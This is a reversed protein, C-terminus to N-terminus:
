LDIWEEISKDQNIGSAKQTNKGNTMYSGSSSKSYYYKKYYKKGYGGGSEEVYNYIVGLIRAGIFEFQQAAASYALRNCYNQRVVLLVGDTEKAVALADTVEGVPPLDLLVYDFYERLHALLKSMKASSLLEVPNPPNRGAAVVMFADEEGPIGCNQFLDNFTVQGALYNSLGPVKAIPLKTSLSPRRMDCDILLVRKDLQSLTHALNISTLSKGEGAMASSIGIVHCNNDDAFSFQIKTRLLKYAETAAFSINSGVLPQNKGTLGTKKADQKKGSAYYYSGSKSNASMNPVTVLVPHDTIMTIDEESRITIDFIEHLVIASVSLVFGFLFGIVTNMPYSPSSPKVPTVPRDVIKASSGEIISSIREPLVNAIADAIKMAEAPDPSTVVVQFFETSNVAEAEIMKMLDECDINVGAYSIVESLSEQSQLIVIYSEVLSKSATIDSSTISFSPDTKSNNNVYFTAAAEYKPTILFFTGFFAIATSLITCLIVLWFKRWIAGFLRQIDIEMADKKEVMISEM